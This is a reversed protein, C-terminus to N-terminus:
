IGIMLEQPSVFELGVGALMPDKMPQHRVVRARCDVHELAQSNDSDRPVALSVGLESDLHPLQSLKLALFLGGDSLDESRTRALLHGHDNYLNVPCQLAFRRYRRRESVNM